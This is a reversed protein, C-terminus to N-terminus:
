APIVLPAFTADVEAVIDALLKAQKAEERKREKEQATQILQDTLQQKFRERESELWAVYSQKTQVDIITLEEAMIHDPKRMFCHHQLNGSTLPFLKSLIYGQNTLEVVKTIMDYLFEAFVHTHSEQSVHYEAHRVAIHQKLEQEDFQPASGKISIKSTM